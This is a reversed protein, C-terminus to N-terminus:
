GWTELRLDKIRSFHSKNNSVLTSDTALAHAAILLDMAGIPVGGSELTHRIRGYHEACEIGDFQLLRFPSLVKKVAKSEIEYSASKRAGYELEAATIASLAVIDGLATTERCRSLIDNARHRLTNERARLPSFLKLGRILFILTDTDLLYIM